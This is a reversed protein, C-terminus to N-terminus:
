KVIKIITIQPNSTKLRSFTSDALKYNHWSLAKKLSPSWGKTKDDGIFFKNDSTRMIVFKEETLNLNNLRKALKDHKKAVDLLKYQLDVMEKFNTMYLNKAWYYDFDDFTAEYEDKRPFNLSEKLLKDDNANDLIGFIIPPIAIILIDIIISTFRFTNFAPFVNIGAVKLLCCIGIICLASIMCGAFACYLDLLKLSKTTNESIKKNFTEEYKTKEVKIEERKKLNADFEDKVKKVVAEVADKYGQDYTKYQENLNLREQIAEMLANTATKKM